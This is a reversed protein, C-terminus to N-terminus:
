CTSVKTTTRLGTELLYFTNKDFRSKLFNTPFPPKLYFLVYESLGVREVVIPAIVLKTDKVAVYSAGNLCVRDGTKRHEFANLM